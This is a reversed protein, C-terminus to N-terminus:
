QGEGTMQAYRERLRKIIRHLQVRVAGASKGLAAGAEESTLGADITLSLLERQEDPLAAVLRRVIRGTEEQEVREAMSEDAADFEDLAVINRRARYHSVVVNRAIRFLWASVMGDKYGSLGALARAFVESCLDEAERPDGVRRYCYAYVRPFYHEYIPAFAAPNQRALLMIRAEDPANDTTAHPDAPLSRAPEPRNM